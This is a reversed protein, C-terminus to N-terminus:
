QNQFRLSCDVEPWPGAAGTDHGFSDTQRQKRQFMVLASGWLTHEAQWLCEGGTDFIEKPTGLHDTVIPYFRANPTASGGSADQSGDPADGTLDLTEKAIPNFTGPEFHWRDIQTRGRSSGFSIPKSSGGDEARTKWEEAITAGQWLYTASKVQGTKAPTLREKRVRRGFADCTYRWREGEPTQVERLRDFDDWRYTWTKPRFGNRAATKKVVRGRTDCHYTTTGIREICDRHYHHRRHGSQSLNMLADYDYHEGALRDRHRPVPRQVWTVQDRPDYRYETKGRVSDDVGTLRGSRDRGYRRSVQGTLDLAPSLHSPAYELLSERSRGAFQKALRGNSDYNQLLTFAGPGAKGDAVHYRREKELGLANRKFDLAHGNSSMSELLGLPDYCLRTEGSPSKRGTLRESADYKYHVAIGNQIEQSIRGHKDYVLRVESEPETNQEEGDKRPTFSYTVARTPRDGEDYEYAIRATKTEISVIRDREDWGVHQEIGDPLHRTLVRGAADRRYYTQRGAWDTEM